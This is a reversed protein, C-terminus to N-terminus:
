VVQISYNFLSSQYYTSNTDPFPSKAFTNALGILSYYTIASVANPDASASYTENILVRVTIVVNNSQPQSYNIERITVRYGNISEYDNISQRVSTLAASLEMEKAATLLFIYAGSVIVAIVFIYEFSVQGKM